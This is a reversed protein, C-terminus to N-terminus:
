SCPGPTSNCSLEMTTIGYSGQFDAGYTISYQHGAGNGSPNLAHVPDDPRDIEYCHTVATGGDGDTSTMDRLGPGNFAYNLIIGPVGAAVVFDISADQLPGIATAITALNGALYESVAGGWSHSVVTVQRQTGSPNAALWAQTRTYLDRADSDANVKSYNVLNADIGGVAASSTGGIVVFHVRVGALSAYDFSTAKTIGAGWLGFTVAGQELDTASFGARLAAGIAQELTIGDGEVAVGDILPPTTPHAPDIAGDIPLALWQYSGTGPVAVILDGPGINEGWVVDLPDPLPDATPESVSCAAM